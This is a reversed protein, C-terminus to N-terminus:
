TAGRKETAALPRKASIEAMLKGHRRAYVTPLIEIMHQVPM